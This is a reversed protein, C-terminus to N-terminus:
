STIIACRYSNYCHNSYHCQSYIEYCSMDVWCMDNGSCDSYGDSYVEKGGAINEMAEEDIPMKEVLLARLENENTEVGRKEAEKILAEIWDKDDKPETKKIAEDIENKINKDTLLEKITM